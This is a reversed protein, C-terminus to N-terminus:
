LPRPFWAESTVGVHIMDASNPLRHRGPQFFWLWYRAQLDTQADKMQIAKDRLENIFNRAYLLVSADAQAWSFIGNDSLIREEAFAIFQDVNGPVVVEAIQRLTQRLLRVDVLSPRRPAETASPTAQVAYRGTKRIAPLVDNTVWRRFAKAQPKRSKLVAHYLGSESIVTCEQNGSPTSVLHTGKEDADLIRALNAGDRYELAAAIDAAVFWPDGDVTVTRIQTTHFQFVQPAAARITTAQM